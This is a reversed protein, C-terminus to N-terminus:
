QDYAYSDVVTGSSDTLAVVNGQGDLVYYYRTTTGGVTRLLQLPAGSQQYVYTDTYSGTGSVTIQAM